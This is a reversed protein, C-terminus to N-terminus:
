GSQCRGSGASRYPLFCHASRQGSALKKRGPHLITDRGPRPGGGPGPRISVGTPAQSAGASRLAASAPQQPRDEPLLARQTFLRLNRHLRGSCVSPAIPRSIAAVSGSQRRGSGNPEGAALQDVPTGVTGLSRRTGWPFRPRAHGVRWRRARREPWKVALRRSLPLRSVVRDYDRVLRGRPWRTFM